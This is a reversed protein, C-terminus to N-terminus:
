AASAIHTAFQRGRAALQERLARPVQRQAKARPYPMEAIAKGQPYLAEHEDWNDFALRDVNDIFTEAPVNEALILSHDDVEVHYYTYTTPVNHERVISTGNVLAGAQVLLGDVFLAHDPSVLLDRVPLNDGLAGARVRIPLVRLPDAFVTSVTQRGLWSVPVTRGDATSVLDGRALAEVAVEGAPTRIMTGAIFCIVDINVTDSDSLSGDSTTITLQDDVDGIQIDSSTTHYTLGNLATNINAATGSFTVTDTGDGTLGSLGVTGALTLTGAEVHLTVTLNASDIDSVTIQNGNASGFVINGSAQWNVSQTPLGSPTTAAYSINVNDIYIIDDADLDNDSVIRVVTTASAYSSIDISAHQYSADTGTGTITYVTTFNTGDKSVQVRVQELDGGTAELSERRFDFELTAQTQGNLNATRQIYDDNTDGDQDTIRLSNSGGDSAIYYEGTTNIASNDDGSETWNNAWNASGTNLNYAASNFADAVDGHSQEFLNQPAENVNTVSITVGKTSTNGAADTANVNISYGNNSGSDTPAEYNPSAVFRVEGTASDITFRAADTGSLSYTVGHTDTAAATYVVTSPATNEAVSASAGSTIAPDTNDITVALTSSAPGLNGAADRTYATLNHVGDSLASLNVSWSGGGGFSSTTGVLAAGDYVVVSLGSTSGSVTGAINPTTDSTLNDSNSTGLDSSSSLDITTTATPAASDIVLTQTDFDTSSATASNDVRITYTGDALNQAGVVSSTTLDFSWTTQGQPLTVQGVLQGDTGGSFSGGSLYIYLIDSGTGSRAATGSITLTKDSTNYDSGSSGTDSTIGTISAGTISM